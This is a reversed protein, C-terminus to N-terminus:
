TALSRFKRAVAEAYGFAAEYSPGAVWSSLFQLGKIDLQRQFTHGGLDTGVMAGYGSGATNNTFKVYTHPTAGETHIVHGRMAPAVEFLRELLTDIARQKKERYPPSRRKPWHQISDLVNLCVVFGDEPNLLHYNTIEMPSHHWFASEAQSPNNVAAQRLPEAQQHHTSFHMTETSTLGLSEPPADTVLYVTTTSRAPKLRKLKERAALHSDPPFFQEMVYHPSANMFVQNAYYSTGRSVVGIIRNDELLLRDVRSKLRIESGAERIRQALQDSLRQSTGRVYANGQNLTAYVVHLYYLYGLDEPYGGVYIGPAALIEKLLPNRILRDLGQAVTINRLHKNAYRIDNFDAPEYSGDLMQFQYYGNKGHVSVQDFFARIGIEEEPFSDILSAELDKANNPLAIKQDDCHALFYETPFFLELESDLQLGRLIRRLNGTSSMGSLKHLSCDFTVEPKPRQFASAYGGVVIHKDLLLLRLDPQQRLLLAACALSTIGTGVFIADWHTDHNTM